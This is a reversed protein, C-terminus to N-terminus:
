SITCGKKKAPEAPAAAPAATSGETSTVPTSSETEPKSSLYESELIVSESNLYFVPAKDNALLWTSPVVVISSPSRIERVVGKGYM